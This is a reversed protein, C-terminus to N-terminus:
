LGLAASLAIGSVVGMVPAAMLAGAAAKLKSAGLCRVALVGMACHSVIFSWTIVRFYGEFGGSGPAAMVWLVLSVLVSAVFAASLALLQAATVKAFTSPQPRTPLRFTGGELFVAGCRPCDDAGPFIDALCNPCRRMHGLKPRSIGAFPLDAPQIGLGNM